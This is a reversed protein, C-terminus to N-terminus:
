AQEQKFIGDCSGLLKYKHIIKTEDMYFTVYLIGPLYNAIADVEYVSSYENTYRCSINKINKYKIDTLRVSAFVPKSFNIKSIVNSMMRGSISTFVLRDDAEIIACYDNLSVSESMRDKKEVFRIM